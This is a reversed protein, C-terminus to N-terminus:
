FGGEPCLSFAGSSASASVEALTRQFTVSKLNIFSSEVDMTNQINYCVQSNFSKCEMIFSIIEEFVWAIDWLEEKIVSIHWM